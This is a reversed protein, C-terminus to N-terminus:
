YQYTELLTETQRKLDALAARRSLAALEVAMQEVQQELPSLEQAISEGSIPMVTVQAM